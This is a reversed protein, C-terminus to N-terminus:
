DWRDDRTYVAGDEVRVPFSAIPTYAPPCTVAGTRIDFRAGHRPCEIESGDITGGTLEGGDHTCVDEIAYYAGDLNIVAVQVGDVIAVHYEGPLCEATSCVRTWESM